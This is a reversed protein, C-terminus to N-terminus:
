KIYNGADFSIDHSATQTVAQLSEAQYLGPQEKAKSKIVQYLNKVTFYRTKDGYLILYFQEEALWSPM